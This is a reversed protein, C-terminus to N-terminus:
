LVRGASMVAITTLILFAACALVVCLLITLLGAAFGILERQPQAGVADFLAGAAWLAVQWMLLRLLVPLFLLCVTVITYVGVTSRALDLSDLIVSLSESLTTGVVPVFATLTAKAARATLRDATGSIRCQVALIAAGIGNLATLTSVIAKRIGALPLVPTGSLPLCVGLALLMRCVPVFVQDNITSVVQTYGLLLTSYVGALTSHGSATLLGAYVPLFARQYIVSARVAEAIADLLSGFPRLLILGCAAQIMVEAARTQWGSTGAPLARSLFVLAALGTLTLLTQWPALEAAFLIRLREKVADLLSFATLGETDDPEIHLDKLITLVDDPTAEKITNLEFADVVSQWEENEVAKVQVTFFLLLTLVCVVPTFRRM